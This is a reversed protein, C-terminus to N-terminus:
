AAASQAMPAISSVLTCPLQARLSFVLRTGECKEMYAASHTGAERSIACGAPPSLVCLVQTGRRISAHDGAIDVALGPAVNFIVEISHSGYGEIQDIIVIRSPGCRVERTTTGLDAFRKYGDHSMRWAFDGETPDCEIKQLDIHTFQPTDFVGGGPSAAQEEHDLLVVNHARGRRHLRRAKSDSTYCYTGSDVLVPEGRVSLLISTKDYHNHGGAAAAIPMAFGLLAYTENRFMGVGAHSKVTAMSTWQASFPDAEGFLRASWDALYSVDATTWSYYGSHFLVRADSSDGVQPAGGWARHYDASFRAAQLLREYAAEGLLARARANWQSMPKPLAVALAVFISELSFQHYQIAAEFNGGDERFQRLIEIKLLDLAASKWREVRDGTFFHLLAFHLAAGVLQHNNITLKATYLDRTQLFEIHRWLLQIAAKRAAQDHHDFYAIGLAINLGRIAADLGCCWNVGMLYPNARRWDDVVRFFLKAHRKDDARRQAAILASVFQLHSLEWTAAFDQGQDPALSYCPYPALDFRNGSFYDTHWDPLNRHLELIRGFVRFRGSHVAKADEIASPNGDLLLSTPSDSAVLADAHSTNWQPLSKLEFPLRATASIRLCDLTETLSRWAHRCNARVYGIMRHAAEGVNRRDRFRTAECDGPAARQHDWFAV